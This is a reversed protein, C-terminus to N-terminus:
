AKELSDQSVHRQKELKKPFTQKKYKKKIFTSDITCNSSNTSLTVSNVEDFTNISVSKNTSMKNISGFSKFNTKRELYQEFSEVKPISKHNKLYLKRQKQLGHMKILTLALQWRNRIRRIHTPLLNKKNKTDRILLECFAIKIPHTQNVEMHIFNVYSIFGMDRRELMRGFVSYDLRPMFFLAALSSLIMRMVCVFSGLFCDFFFNFHTLISYLRSNRLLFFNRKNKGVLCYRAIYWIIIRKFLFIVLIPLFLKLLKEIIFYFKILFKAALIIILLVQFLILYGWVLYGIMYGSYHLSSSAKKINSFRKPSPIDVYVGLNLLKKNRTSM